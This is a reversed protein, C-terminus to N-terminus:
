KNKRKENIRDIEEKIIDVFAKDDIKISEEAAVSKDAFADFIKQKDELLKLIKEDITNECLLRYVLVNRSQGMRYSRSIAQNETSPKFQPECIIVVSAAQMNLGIGGSIIQAILVSKDSSKEFEDIIEQRKISSVSGTIPTTCKEGLFESIKYITDLFFSFVLVKRGESEAEEVLEKLREAKSSKKLDNINWSLRRAEPYTGYLISNEYTTEEEKNMVCWEKSEILEPLETLVDDRKRRYYVPVIKERFQPASSMFAINKIDNAISPNLIKILNIMEDVRNELATGTMFLLREAHSSLEKANISRLAKPNKIYHAEDIILLSYKYNIEFKIYHITEFTTVAVGGTDLWENFARSRNYGHIMFANLKSHKNVERCWNIIVSAPCVVIFHTAGTNRLSVMTAIAQITKGLGMEDGLLVKGQHLIYKVGWEQYHRLTCLLGEPFFCEEQIKRALEKPLGYCSDNMGLIGPYIEEIINYFQISNISFDNWAESVNLTKLKYYDNIIKKSNVAFEDDFIVNKLYKYELLYNNKEELDSFYYLVGNSIKKMATIANDISTQYLKILNNKNNILEKLTKYRYVSLVVKDTILNKNDTSLKIKINNNAHKVIEDAEEKISLAASYSIGQIYSLQTASYTYIDAVNTYGGDILSKIRIGKKGRNIEEVPIEKLFNLLEIAILKDISNKAESKISYINNDIIQFNDIIRKYENIIKEIEIVKCGKEVILPYIKFLITRYELENETVDIYVNKPEIKNMMELENITNTAEVYFLGNLEKQLESYSDETMKRKEENSFIWKIFNKGNSLSSIYNQIVESNNRYLDLGYNTLDMSKFYCYMSKILNYIEKYDNESAKLSTLDKNLEKHFFNCKILLDANNKIDLEYKKVYKKCESLKNMVEKFQLIIKKADKFTFTRDM